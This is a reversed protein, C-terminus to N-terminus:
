SCLKCIGHVTLRGQIGCDPLQRKLEDKIQCAVDADRLRGCGDCMFHDHPETNYDYRMAGSIDAPAFAIEKREELRATARHVTTASLEPYKGRLTHLLEANTAHGLKALESLISICYKSSRTRVVQNSDTANM